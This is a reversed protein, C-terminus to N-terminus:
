RTAGFAATLDDRELTGTTGEHARGVFIGTLRGGDGGTERFTNGRVSVTYGLDGDLWQTGTGTASPVQGTPFLELRTFDARGSMTAFNIGIEADGSVSEAQPTLGLLTGTWTASGSLAHNDALDSDPMYGYAWPEAYGNRLAVGFATHSGHGAVHLSDSEWPGLRSPNYLHRLAERDIPYLMSLPQPIGQQEDYITGYGRANHGSEIITDYLSHHPPHKFELKHMIEHSLLIIAQRDGGISYERSIVIDGGYLSIGWADGYRREFESADLFSIPISARSSISMKHEEPLAANVMQVARLIRQRDALSASSDWSVTVPPYIDHQPTRGASTDRMFSQLTSYGVGDELRGYKIALNGRQGITSLRRLHQSGQDVGVGLRSNDRWVPMHKTVSPSLAPLRRTSYHGNNEPAFEIPRAADPRISSGNGGGGCAVLSVTIAYATALGTACSRTTRYM